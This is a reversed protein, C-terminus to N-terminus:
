VKGAEIGCQLYCSLASRSIAGAGGAEANNKNLQIFARGILQAGAQFVAPDSEWIPGILAGTLARNSGGVVIELAKQNRKFSQELQGASLGYAVYGMMLGALAAQRMVEEIGPWLPSALDQSYTSGYTSKQVRAALKMLLPQVTSYEVGPYSNDWALCSGETTSSRCYSGWRQIGKELEGSQNM